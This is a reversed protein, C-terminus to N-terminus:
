HADVHTEGLRLPGGGGARAGAAPLSLLLALAAAHIANMANGPM